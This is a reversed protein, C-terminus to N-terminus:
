SARGRFVPKRKEMFARAGELADESESANVLSEMSVLIDHMSADWWTNSSAKTIALFQPSAARIDEIWRNVEDTLEDDPVVANVLGMQVAQEASYRRTLMCLEKSRKEGIQLAMLNTAGNVPASGRRPGTQGFTASAAAIALDCVVVLENGGGAAPGNVAAIVPRPSMRIAQFARLTGFHLARISKENPQALEGLFGGSCFGRGSGTIVIATADLSDLVAEGLTRIMAGDFANLREPRNLTIWAVDERMEYLVDPM